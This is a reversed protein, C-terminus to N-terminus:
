RVGFISSGSRIRMRCRTMPLDFRRPGVLPATADVVDGGRRRKLTTGFDRIHLSKFFGLAFFLGVREFCTFTLAVKVNAIPTSALSCSRTSAARRGSHIYIRKSRKEDTLSKQSSSLTAKLFARCPTQPRTKYLSLSLSLSLERASEREKRTGFVDDDLPTNM